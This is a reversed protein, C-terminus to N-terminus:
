ASLTTPLVIKVASALGAAGGGVPRIFEIKQNNYDIDYQEIKEGAGSLRIVKSGVYAYAVNNAVYSRTFIRDVGIAGAVVDASFPLGSASSLGQATIAALTAKNMVVSVVGEEVIKAVGNLLAAIASADASGDYKAVHVNDSDEAADEFSVISTIKRVANALRGDGVIFDREEEETVKQPLESNIYALLLDGFEEQMDEYSLEQLKYLFQTSFKQAALDSAQIAKIEGKTHRGARALDAESPVENMLTFRKAPITKFTDLIDTPRTVALIETFVADPVLYADEGDTLTIANKVAEIVQSRNMGRIAGNQALKALANLVMAKDAVNETAKNTPQNAMEPKEEKDEKTLEEAETEIPDIAVEAVPEVEVEAEKEIIPEVAEPTKVEEAVEEISEDKDVSNKALIKAKPEAGAYVISVEIIKANDLKGTDWVTEDTGYDTTISVDTLQNSLIRQRVDQSETTDFFNAHMVAQKIGDVDEIHAENITGIKNQVSSSHDTMLPIAVEQPESTLVIYDGEATQAQLTDISYTYGNLNQVSRAAIFTIEGNDKTEVEASNKVTKLKTM